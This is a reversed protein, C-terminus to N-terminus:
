RIIMIKAVKTEEADEGTILVFYVGSAVRYKGFATTDWLVSGGLSTTEYVLNGEIDTIKINANRTLGDITVNGLFGPRVPNPFARVASLNDRPATASGKFAVLGNLTAFYVLGSDPDIAIDQVNNSPLPSNKKTFHHITEQGDPSLYFVGSTATAVWKKNAGDVKIDTLAQQFLLEQPIGEELIIIPQAKPNSATEFFPGIGFLVRLGKSTGVWLLNNKDFALARVSSFDPLEGENSGAVIKNFVSNGPNYGILGNRNTGFFIFGERSITLDTLALELKPNTIIESLDIGQISGSSNLKKLGDKVRSQ